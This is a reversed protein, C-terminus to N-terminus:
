SKIVRNVMAYIKVEFELITQFNKSHIHIKIELNYVLYMYIVLKKRTLSNRFPYTTRLSQSSIPIRQQFELIIKPSFLLM